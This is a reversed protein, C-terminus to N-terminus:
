LSLNLSHLTPGSFGHELPFADFSSHSPFSYIALRRLFPPILASLLSLFVGSLSFCLSINGEPQQAM